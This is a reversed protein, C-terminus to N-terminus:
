PYAVEVKYFKTTTGVELDTVRREEGNDSTSSNALQNWTSVIDSNAIVRYTRDNLRPSFILYKQNPQGPVPEIRFDFFANPANPDTPHLGATYKFLNNQGTGTVDKDPGGQPNGEGFYQVQWTDPLGDAGYLGFDDGGVNLVSFEVTDVQAQYSGEVTANTDKYVFGATALGENSISQLPGSAVSWLVESGPVVFTTDDDLYAEAGLQSTAGEDLVTVSATVQLETVEYLQGLYGAKATQAPSAVTSIGTIGGLSGDNTYASSTARQGGADTSDTPISYDTSTRPGAHASAAFALLLATVCFLQSPTTSNHKM